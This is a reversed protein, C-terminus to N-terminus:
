HQDQPSVLFQLEKLWLRQCMVLPSAACHNLVTSGQRTEASTGVTNPSLCPQTVHSQQVLNEEANGQSFDQHSLLVCYYLCTIFVFQTESLCHSLAFFQTESLCRSLAFAFYKM